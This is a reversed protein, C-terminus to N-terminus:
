PNRVFIERFLVIGGRIMLWTCCMWPYIFIMSILILGFKHEIGRRWMRLFSYMYLTYAYYMILFGPALTAHPIWARDHTFEKEFMGAWFFAVVYICLLTLFPKSDFWKPLAPLVNEAEADKAKDEKEPNESM